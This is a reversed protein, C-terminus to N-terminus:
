CKKFEEKMSVDIIYYFVIEKLSKCSKIFELLSIYHNLDPISVGIILTELKVLHKCNNLFKDFSESTFYYKRLELCKLTAPLSQGLECSLPETYFSIMTLHQLSSQSLFPLLFENGDRVNVHLSKLNLCRNILLNSLERTKIQNLYLRKLTSGWMEVLFNIIHSDFNRSLLKLGRLNNLPENLLSTCHELTIEKCNVFELWRLNRCQTLVAQGIYLTKLKKQAKIINSCTTILEESPNISSFTFYIKRLNTCITTLDKLFELAISTTFNNYTYFSCELRVLQSLGPKYNAFLATSPFCLLENSDSIVIGKLNKNTRVFMSVLSRTVAQANHLSVCYDNYRQWWLVGNKLHTIKLLTTYSAYNFLPKSTPPLFI